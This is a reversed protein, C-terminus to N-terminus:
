SLLNLFRVEALLRTSMIIHESIDVTHETEQTGQVYTGVSTPIKGYRVASPRSSVVHNYTDDEYYYFQRRNSM